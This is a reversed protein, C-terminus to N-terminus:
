YGAGADLLVTEGECFSTPGLPTIVPEPKVLVNVTLPASTAQCGSFDAVTVTFTGPKTVKISRMTQNNSWTYKSFGAPATLTVFSGECFTTPGSAEILPPAVGNVQIEASASQSEGTLATGVVTLSDIGASNWTVTIVNTNQGSVITGRKIEWYFGKAVSSVATYSETKGACPSMDGNIRLDFAPASQAYAMGGFVVILTLTCLVTIIRSPSLVPKMELRGTEQIFENCRKMRINRVIPCLQECLSIRM